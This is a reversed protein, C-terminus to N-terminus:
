VMRESDTTGGEVFESGWGYPGAIGRVIFVSALEVM